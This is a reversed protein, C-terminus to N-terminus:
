RHSQEVEVFLCRNYYRIGFTKSGVSYSYGRHSTNKSGDANYYGNEHLELGMKKLDAVISDLRELAETESTYYNTYYRIRVAGGKFYYIDCYFTQGFMVQAKGQIVFYTLSPEESRYLKVGEASMRRSFEEPTSSLIDAGLGFPNCVAAEFEAPTTITPTYGIARKVPASKRPTSATKQTRGPKSGRRVWKDGNLSFNNSDVFNVRGNVSKGSELLIFLVGDRVGWAGKDEDFAFFYSQSTESVSGDLRFTYIFGIGPTSGDYVWEGELMSKLESDTHAAAGAANFALALMALFLTRIIMDSMNKLM